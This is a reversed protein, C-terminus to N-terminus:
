ESHDGRASKLSKAFRLFHLNSEMALMYTVKLECPVDASLPLAYTAM